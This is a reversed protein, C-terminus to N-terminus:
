MICCMQQSLSGRYPSYTTPNNFNVMDCNSILHNKVKFITKLWSFSYDMTTIKVAMVFEALLSPPMHAYKYNKTLIALHVFWIHLQNLRKIKYM